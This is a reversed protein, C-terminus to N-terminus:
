LARADVITRQEVTRALALRREVRTLWGDDRATDLFESMAPVLARLADFRMQDMSNSFTWDMREIPAAEAIRLKDEFAPLRAKVQEKTMLEDSLGGDRELRALEGRYFDRLERLAAIDLEVRHRAALERPQT